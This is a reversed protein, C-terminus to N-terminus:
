KIESYDWQICRGLMCSNTPGPEGTDTVTARYSIVGDQWIGAPLHYYTDNYENIHEILAPQIRITYDWVGAIFGNHMTGSAKLTGDPYWTKHPGEYEGNAMGYQLWLQGNPLYVQQEGHLKGNEYSRHSRINGNTHWATWKGERVGKAFLGEERLSGDPFFARYPGTPQGQLLKLTSILQEGKKLTAEALAGNTDFVLSGKLPGFPHLDVNVSREGTRIIGERQVVRELLFLETLADLESQQELTPQTPTCAHESAVQGCGVWRGKFLFDKFYSDTSILGHKTRVKYNRLVYSLEPYYFHAYGGGDREVSLGVLHPVARATVTDVHFDVKLIIPASPISESNRLTDSGVYDLDKWLTAAGSAVASNLIDVFPVISDGPVNMTLAPNDKPTIRLFIRKEWYYPEDTAYTRIREAGRMAIGDVGYYFLIEPGANLIWRESIFLDDLAIQASSRGFSLGVVLLLVLRM